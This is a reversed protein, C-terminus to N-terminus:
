CGRNDDELLGEFHLNNRRSQNQLYVTKDIHKKM